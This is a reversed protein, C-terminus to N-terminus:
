QQSTFSLDERFRLVYDVSNSLLEAERAIIRDFERQGVTGPIDLGDVAGDIADSYTYRFFTNNNGGLMVRGARLDNMGAESLAPTLQDRHWAFYDDANAPSVTRVRVRMYEGPPYLSDGTIGLAAYFGVSLLTTHDEAHGLRDVLESGLPAPPQDTFATDQTIITYTDLDGRVREYVHFLLRGAEQQITAVDKLAAEFAAASDPKITVIRLTWRTPETEQASLMLPTMLLGCIILSCSRLLASICSTRM